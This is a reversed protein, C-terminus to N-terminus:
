IGTRKEKLMREWMLINKLIKEKVFKFLLKCDYQRKKCGLDWDFYRIVYNNSKFDESCKENIGQGNQIYNKM